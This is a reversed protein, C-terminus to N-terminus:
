RSFRPLVQCSDLLRRREAAPIEHWPQAPAPLGARALEALEEVYAALTDQVRRREEDYRAGLHDRVQAADRLADWDFPAHLLPEPIWAVDTGEQVARDRALWAPVGEADVARVPRLRLPEIVALSGFLRTSAPRRTEPETSLWVANSESPALLEAGGDLLRALGFPGPYRFLTPCPEDLGLARGASRLARSPAYRLGTRETFERPTEKV